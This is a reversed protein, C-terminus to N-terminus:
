EVTLCHPICRSALSCNAPLTRAPRAHRPTTGPRPGDQLERTVAWALVRPPLRILRFPRPYRMRTPLGM